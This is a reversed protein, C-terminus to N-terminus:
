WCAVKLCSTKAISLCRRRYLLRELGYTVLVVDFVRGDRRALDLLRQRVSAALDKPAKAM